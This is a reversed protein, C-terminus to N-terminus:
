AESALVNTLVGPANDREDFWGVHKRLFVAYLNERMKLTMNEGVVGWSTKQIFGNFFSVLACIFLGLCWKKSEDYMTEMDPIMYAFLIKAMIFGFVPFICGQILSTVLGILVNIIPKNYPALRGLFNAKELKTTIAKVRADEEEDIKDAKEKMDKEEKIRLPDKLPKAAKIKYKDQKPLSM